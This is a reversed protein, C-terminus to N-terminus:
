KAAEKTKEADATTKPKGKSFYHRGNIPRVNAATSTPHVAAKKIRKKLGLHVAQMRQVLYARIPRTRRWLWALLVRAPYSVLAVIWVGIVLLSSRILAIVTQLRRRITVRYLLYGLLMAVAASLRFQGDNTAYLVLLLVVSATLMCIIDEFAMIIAPLVRGIRETDGDTRARLKWLRQPPWLRAVLCKAIKPTEKDAFFSFARLLGEFAGSAIGALFCCLLMRALASQSVEM